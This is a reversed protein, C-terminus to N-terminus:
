EEETPETALIETIAKSGSSVIAKADTENDVEETISVVVKDGSIDGIIEEQGATLLVVIYKAEVDECFDEDFRLENILSVQKVAPLEIYQSIYPYISDGDENLIDCIVGNEVHYVNVTYSQSLGEEMTLGDIDEATIEEVTVEVDDETEDANEAGESKEEAEEISTVERTIELDCLAGLFITSDGQIDEVSLTVISYAEKDYDSWPNAIVPDDVTVDSDNIYQDAKLYDGAYMGIVTSAEDWKCPSAGSAILRNYDPVSIAVSKLMDEKIVDGKLIDNAAQIVYVVSEPATDSKNSPVASVVSPDSTPAAGQYSPLIGLVPGAIIFASIAIAAILLVAVFIAAKKKKKAMDDSEGTENTKEPAKEPTALGTNSSAARAANKRNWSEVYSEPVEMAQGTPIGAENAPYFLGTEADLYGSTNSSGVKANTMPLKMIRNREEPSLNVNKKAM